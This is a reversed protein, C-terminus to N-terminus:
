KEEKETEKLKEKISSEFERTDIKLIFDDIIKDRSSIETNSHKIDAKALESAKGLPILRPKEYAKRGM